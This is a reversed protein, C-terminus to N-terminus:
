ERIEAVLRALEPAAVGLAKARRLPEHFIPGTELPLGGRLDLLTSTLYDGMETTLRFQEATWADEDIREARGHAALDANGIRITERMLRESRSRLAPDGLIARTGRGPLGGAVSLGNFPINWALKRWRAELLCPPELVAIGASRWLAALTASEEPQDLLHGVGVQGHAIHRITGDADRNVCIFCLVGFVRQPPCWQALADEVGLGNLLAAMRAGAAVAPACLRQAEALASAKTALLCWDVGGAAAEAPDATARFASPPLVLTRHLRTSAVYTSPEQHLVLGRMRLATLDRRAVFCVEHGALILQAGYFQGIAGAGVIIVRSM